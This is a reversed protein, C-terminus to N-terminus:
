GADGSDDLMPELHAAAASATVSKGALTSAAEGVVILRRLAAAAIAERGFCVCSFFGSVSALAPAAQRYFSEAVM